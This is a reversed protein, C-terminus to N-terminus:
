KDGEEPWLPLSEPENTPKTRAPKRKEKLWRYQEERDSTAASLDVQRMQDGAETMSEQTLKVANHNTVTM